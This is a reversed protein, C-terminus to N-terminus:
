MPSSHEGGIKENNELPFMTNVMAELDEDSININQRLSQALDERLKEVTLEEPNENQNITDEFKASEIATIQNKIEDIQEQPLKNEIMSDLMAEYTDLETRQNRYFDEERAIQQEISKEKEHPLLGSNDRELSTHEGQFPLSNKPKEENQKSDNLALNQKSASQGSIDALRTQLKSPDFNQGTLFGAFFIVAGSLVVKFGLKKM